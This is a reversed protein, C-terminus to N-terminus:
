DMEDMKDKLFNLMLGSPDEYRELAVIMDELPYGRQHLLEMFRINTNIDPGLMNKFIHDMQERTLHQQSQLIEDVCGYSLPSLLLEYIMVEEISYKAFIDRLFMRGWSMKYDRFFDVKEGLSLEQWQDGQLIVQLVKAGEDIEEWKTLVAMQSSISFKKNQMSRILEISAAMKKTQASKVGVVGMLREFFKKM